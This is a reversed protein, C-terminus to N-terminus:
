DDDKHHINFSLCALGPDVMMKTIEDCPGCKFFPPVYIILALAAAIEWGFFYWFAGVPSLILIILAVLQLMRLKDRM